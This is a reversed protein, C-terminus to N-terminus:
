RLVVGGLTLFITLVTAILTLIQGALLQDFRCLLVGRFTLLISSVTTFLPHVVVSTRREDVGLPQKPLRKQTTSGTAM